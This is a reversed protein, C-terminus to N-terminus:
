DSGEAMGVLPSSHRLTHALKRRTSSLRSSLVAAIERLFAVGFRPDQQCLALVQTAELVALRCHTKARATATMTHRGLIPSWGVIEGRGATYVEFHEGRPEEVSLGVEGSLVLYLSPCDRGEEFLVTGPACEQLRAMEAVKHLHPEGLNKLFEISTMEKPAIM